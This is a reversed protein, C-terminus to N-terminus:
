PPRRLDTLQTLLSRLEPAVADAALSDLGLRSRAALLWEYAGREDYAAEVLDEALRALPAATADLPAYSASSSITRPTSGSPGACGASWLVGDAERRSPSM